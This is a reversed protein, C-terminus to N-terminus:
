RLIINAWFQAIQERTEYSLLRYNALQRTGRQIHESSFPRTLWNQEQAQEDLMNRFLSNSRIETRLLQILQDGFIEDFLQVHYASQSGELLRLPPIVGYRGEGNGVKIVFVPVVLRMLPLYGQLTEAPASISEFQHHEQDIQNRLKELSEKLEGHLQITAERVMDLESLQADLSDEPTSSSYVLTGSPFPAAPETLPEEQSWEFRQEAEKLQEMKDDIETIAQKIAAQFLTATNDLEMLRAKVNALHWEANTPKAQIQSILRRCQDTSLGLTSELKTILDALDQSIREKEQGLKQAPEDVFFSPAPESEIPTTEWRLSAGPAMRDRKADVLHLQEEVFEDILNEVQGLQALNSDFRARENRFLIGVDHIEKTSLRSQLCLEERPPPISPEVLLQLTDIMTPLMANRIVLRESQPQEFLQIIEGLFRPVQEPQEIGRLQERLHVLSPISSHRVSIAPEGVGSIILSRGPLAHVLYFPVYLRALYVLPISSSKVQTRFYMVASVLDAEETSTFGNRMAEPPGKIFTAVKTIAM